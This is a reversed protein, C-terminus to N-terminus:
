TSLQMEPGLHAKVTWYSVLSCERSLAGWQLDQFLATTSSKVTQHTIYTRFLSLFSYLSCVKVYNMIYVIDTLQSGPSCLSTINFICRMSLFIPSLNGSLNFDVKVFLLIAITELSWDFREHRQHDGNSEWSKISVIKYTFKLNIRSWCTM